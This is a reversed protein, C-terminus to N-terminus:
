LDDDKIGKPGEEFIAPRTWLIPWTSMFMFIGFLALAVGAGGVSSKIQTCVGGQIGDNYFDGIFKCKGVDGLQLIQRVNAVATLIGNIATNIFSNQLGKMTTLATQAVTANATIRNVGLAIDRIGFTVNTFTNNMNQVVRRIDNAEVIASNYTNNAADLNYATQNIQPYSGSAGYAVPDLPLTYNFRSWARGDIPVTLQSLDRELQGVASLANQTNNVLQPEIGGLRNQSDQIRATYNAVKASVQTLNALIDTFAALARDAETSIDIRSTENVFGDVLDNLTDNASPVFDFLTLQTRSFFTDNPGCNLILLPDSTIKDLLGSFATNNTLDEPILTRLKANVAPSQIYSIKRDCVDRVPIFIIIHIAAFTMIWFVTFAAVWYPSETLAPIEKFFGVLWLGLFILNLLVFAIVVGMRADNQIKIYPGAARNINERSFSLGTTLNSVGDIQDNIEGNVSTKTDNIAQDRGRRYQGEADMVTYRSDNVNTSYTNLNQKSNILLQDNDRPTEIISSNQPVNSIKGDREKQQLYTYNSVISQYQADVNYITNNLFTIENNVNALVMDLTDIVAYIDSFRFQALTRNVGDVEANLRTNVTRLDNGIDGGFNGVNDAFSFISEMSYTINNTTAVTLGIAIFGIISSFVPTLHFSFVPSSPVFAMVVLYIGFAIGYKTKVFDPFAPICHKTRLTLALVALSHSRLWSLSSGRVFKCM